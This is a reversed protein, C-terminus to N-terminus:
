IVKAFLTLPQVPKFLEIESEFFIKKESSSRFNLYLQHFDVIKTVVAFLKLISSRNVFLKLFEM